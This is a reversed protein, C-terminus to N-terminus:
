LYILLITFHKEEDLHPPLLHKIIIEVPPIILIM